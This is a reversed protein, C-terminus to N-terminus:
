SSVLDGKVMWVGCNYHGTNGMPAKLHTFGFSEYIHIAAKLEPITELYCSKFGLAQARELCKLFLKKGYGKGRLRSSFYMKQIECVEADIGQLPKLGGGGEVVGDVVVVFYIEKPKSYAEFMKPTEVDAYATGILPLKFDKFVSRIVSEIQTNDKQEIERIVINNKSM